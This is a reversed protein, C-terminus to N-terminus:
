IGCQIFLCFFRYMNCCKFSLDLKRAGFFECSRYDWVNLSEVLFSISIVYFYVLRTAYDQSREANEDLFKKSNRIVRPWGYLYLWCTLFTAGRPFLVFRHTCIQECFFFFGLGRIRIRWAHKIPCLRMRFVSLAHFKTDNRRIRGKRQFIRAGVPTAKTCCFDGWGQNRAVM